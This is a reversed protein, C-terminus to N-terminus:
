IYCIIKITIEVPKAAKEKTAEYFSSIEICLNHILGYNISKWLVCWQNKVADQSSCINEKRQGSRFAESKSFQKLQGFSAVTVSM